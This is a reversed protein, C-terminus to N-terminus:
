SRREKATISFLVKGHASTKSDSIKVESLIGSLADKIQQVDSLTAAEGKLLVRERDMNIVDFTVSGRNIESIASLFDLFSVGTFNKEKDRLEKMRAKLQYSMATMKKDEPFIQSYIKKMENQIESIQREHSIMKLLFLALLISLCTVSLIGTFKLSKKLADTDKTYSFEGRRLNILNKDLECFIMNIREEPAFNVPKLLKELSFDKLIATLEISTVIKPDINSAKLKAIIKNLLAKDIYVALIRSRGESSELIVADVIVSEAGGLIINDLELPLVDLIKKKDSFPLELIRFNLASLPLSLYFETIDEPIVSVYIDYDKTCDFPTVNKVRFNGGTGEIVYLNSQESIDIFGIM